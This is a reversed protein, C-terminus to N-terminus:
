DRKSTWISQQKQYNTARERERERERRGGESEFNNKLISKNYVAAYIESIYSHITFLTFIYM